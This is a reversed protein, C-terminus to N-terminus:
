GVAQHIFITQGRREDRVVRGAQELFVLHALTEAVAFRIQHASLESLPFVVASIEWASQGSGAAQAMQELREDHHAAIERCREALGGFPRGHGPLALRVPLDVLASFSALYASLPDPRAEPWLSINPTIKPLVHDAILLLESQSDYLCTQGDSHGPLSLVQWAIDGLQLPENIDILTLTPRPLIQTAADLMMAVIADCVEAPMGHRAFFSRNRGSTERQDSEWTRRVIEAEIPAMLVPAGTRQQMWGAMGYHDPHYHTILITEIQQPVLGLQAFVAEWAAETHADHMGTDVVAWGREGRILYCNIYRLPLPVPIPVRYVWPSIEEVIVSASM